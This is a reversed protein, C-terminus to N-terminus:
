KNSLIQDLSVTELGFTLLIEAVLDHFLSKVVFFFDYHLAILDKLNAIM